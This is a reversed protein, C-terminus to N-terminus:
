HSDPNKVNTREKIFTNLAETCIESVSKGAHKGYIQLWFKTQIPVLVSITTKSSSLLEAIEAQTEQNM